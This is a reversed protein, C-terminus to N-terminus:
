QARQAVDARIDDFAVAGAALHAVAAANGDLAAFDAAALSFRMKDCFVALDVVTKIKLVAGHVRFFM